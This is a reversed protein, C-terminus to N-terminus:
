TKWPASNLGYILAFLFALYGYNLFLWDPFIILLAHYAVVGTIFWPYYPLTMM